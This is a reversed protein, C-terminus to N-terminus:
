YHNYQLEAVNAHNLVSEVLDERVTDDEKFRQSPGSISIAAVTEDTEADTIPAAIAVVGERHEEDEVAYGRDRIREFAEFLEDETTITHNTAKPLGHARVIERVRDESKGSLLAKSLSTWHMHTHEGTPTNDYVADGVEQKYLIVRKGGEEVGLSAAEGTEQALNAVQSKAKLFIERNLRALSGLRLNHLSLQYGPSDHIVLGNAELTRLHVHVTSRPRDIQKSVDSLTAPQHNALAELISVATDIADITKTSSQEDLGEPMIVVKEATGILPTPPTAPTDVLVPCRSLGIHM